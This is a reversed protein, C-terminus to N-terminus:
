RSSAFCSTWYGCFSPVAFFTFILSRQLRRVERKSMSRLFHDRSRKEEPVECRGGGEGGM